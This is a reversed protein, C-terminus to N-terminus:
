ANRVVKKDSFKPRGIYHGGSHLVPDFVDRAKRENWTLGCLEVVKKIQDFNHEYLLDTDVFFGGHEQKVNLMFRYVFPDMGKRFPFVFTADPFAKQFLHYYYWVWKFVPTAGDPIVSLVIGRFEEYNKEAEAKKMLSRAAFKKQLHLIVDWNEFTDYQRVISVTSDGCWAGQSVFIGTVLSSRTRARAPILIM